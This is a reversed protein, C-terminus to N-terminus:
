SFVQELIAQRATAEEFTGSRNDQMWEDNPSLRFSVRYNAHESDIIGAFDQKITFEATYISRNM